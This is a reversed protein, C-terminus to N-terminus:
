NRSLELNIDSHCYKTNLKEYKRNNHKDADILNKLNKGREIRMSAVVKSM